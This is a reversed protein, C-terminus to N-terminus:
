QRIRKGGRVEGFGSYDGGHKANANMLFRFYGHLHPFYKTKKDIKKKVKWFYV